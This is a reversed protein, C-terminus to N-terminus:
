SKQPVVFMELQLAHVALAQEIEFFTKRGINPARLLQIKTRSLLEHITRIGEAKLANITRVSLDLAGLSRDLIAHPVTPMNTEKKAIQRRLHEIEGELIENHEIIEGFTLIFKELEHAKTKRLKRIARAEIQMVRTGSIELEAALEKQTRRARHLGFHSRLVQEERISLTAIAGNLAHVARPNWVQTINKRYTNCAIACVEDLFQNSSQISSLPVIGEVYRCLELLSASPFVVEDCRDKRGFLVSLLKAYGVTDRPVELTSLARVTNFIASASMTIHAVELHHHLADLITKEVFTLSEKQSLMVLASLNTGFPRSPVEIGSMCKAVLEAETGLLTAIDKENMSFKELELVLVRLVAEPFRAKQTM